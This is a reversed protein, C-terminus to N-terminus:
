YVSKQHRGQRTEKIITKNYQNWPKDHGSTPTAAGAAVFCQHDFM